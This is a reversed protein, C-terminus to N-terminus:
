VTVLPSHAETETTKKKRSDGIANAEEPMPGRGSTCGRNYNVGAHLATRYVRLNTGLCWAAQSHTRLAQHKPALWSFTTGHCNLRLSCKKITTWRTSPSHLLLVLLFLPLSLFPLFAAPVWYDPPGSERSHGALSLLHWSGQLSLLQKIIDRCLYGGHDHQSYNIFATLKTTLHHTHTYANWRPHLSNLNHHLAEQINFIQHMSHM